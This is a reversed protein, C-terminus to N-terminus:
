GEIAALFAPVSSDITLEGNPTSIVPKGKVVKFCDINISSKKVWLEEDGGQKIVFYSNNEATVKAPAVVSKTATENLTNWINSNVQEALPASARSSAIVKKRRKVVKTSKSRPVYLMWGDLGSVPKLTKIATELKEKDYSAPMITFEIYLKGNARYLTGHQHLNQYDKKHSAYIPFASNESIQMAFRQVQGPFNSMKLGDENLYLRCTGINKGLGFYLNGRDGINNKTLRAVEIRNFFMETLLSDSNANPTPRTYRSTRIQIDAIKESMISVVGAM